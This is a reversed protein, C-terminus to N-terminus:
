VIPSKRKPYCFIGYEENPDFLYNLSVCVTLHLCLIQIGFIINDGRITLRSAKFLTPPVVTWNVTIEGTDILGTKGYKM